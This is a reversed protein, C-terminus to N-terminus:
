KRSRGSKVYNRLKIWLRMRFQFLRQACCFQPVNVENDAVLLGKKYDDLSQWVAVGITVCKKM